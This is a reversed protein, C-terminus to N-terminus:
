KTLFKNNQQINIFQVANDIERWNRAPHFRGVAITSDDMNYRNILWVAHIGEKNANRCNAYNDDVMVDINNQKCYEAKNNCAYILKSYNVEKKNFWKVTAKKLMGINPRSSVFHIEHGQSHWEKLTKVSGKVETVVKDHVLRFFSLASMNQMEKEVNVEIYKLSNNKSTKKDIANALRFIFSSCDVVVRDLDVMIKMNCYELMYSKISDVYSM